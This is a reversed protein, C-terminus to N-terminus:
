DRGLIEPTRAPETYPSPVPDDGASGWPHCRALRRLTLWGGRWAGHREIAEEAYCSCSPHFRCRGGFIGSLRRRYFRVLRMQARAAAGPEMRGNM